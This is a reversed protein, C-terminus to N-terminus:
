QGLTLFFCMVVNPTEPSLAGEDYGSCMGGYPADDGMKIRLCTKFNGAPACELRAESYRKCAAALQCLDRDREAKARKAESAFRARQAREQEAAQDQATPPPPPTTPFIFTATFGVAMVVLWFTRFPHQVAWSLVKM